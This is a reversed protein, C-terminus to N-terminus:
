KKAAVITFSVLPFKVIIPWVSQLPNCVYEADAWYVANGLAAEVPVPIKVPTADVDDVVVGGSVPAQAFVVGKADKIFRSVKVPCSRYKRVYPKLELIGGASVVTREAAYLEVVAPPSRDFSWYAITFAAAIMIANTVHALIQQLASM